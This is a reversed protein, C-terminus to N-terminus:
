CGRGNWSKEGAGDESLQKLLIFYFSLHLPYLKARVPTAESLVWSASATQLPTPFRPVVSLYFSLPAGKARTEQESKSAARQDSCLTIMLHSSLCFFFFFFCWVRVHPILRHNVLEWDAQILLSLGGTMRVLVKERGWLWRCTCSPASVLVFCLAEEKQNLHRGLNLSYFQIRM